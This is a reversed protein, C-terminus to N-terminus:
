AGKQHLFYVAHSDKERFDRFWAVNAGTVEKKGSSQVHLIARAPNWASFGSRRSPTPTTPALIPTHETVFESLSSACDTSRPRRV